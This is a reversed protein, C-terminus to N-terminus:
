ATLEEYDVELAIGSADWLGGRGKRATRTNRAQVRTTLRTSTRRMELEADAITNVCIAILLMGATHMLVGQQIANAVLLARKGTSLKLKYFLVDVYRHVAGPTIGMQAQRPPLKGEQVKWM